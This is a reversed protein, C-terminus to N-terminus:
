FKKLLHLSTSIIVAGFAGARAAHLPHLLQQHLHQQLITTGIPGAMTGILTDVAISWLAFVLGERRYVCLLIAPLTMTAGGMAGVKVSSSMSVDYGDHHTARLIAQGTVLYIICFVSQLAAVLIEILSVQIFPACFCSKWSPPTTDTIAYHYYRTPEPYKERTPFDSASPATSRVRATVPLPLCALPQDHVRPNSQAYIRSPGNVNSPSYM